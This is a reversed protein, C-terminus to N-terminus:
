FTLFKSEREFKWNLARPRNAVCSSCTRIQYSSRRFCALPNSWSAELISLNKLSPAAIFLSLPLTHTQSSFENEWECGQVGEPAHHPLLSGRSSYFKWCSGGFILYSLVRYIEESNLVFLYWKTVRKTCAPVDGWFFIPENSRYLLLGGSANWFKIHYSTCTGSEKLHKTLM